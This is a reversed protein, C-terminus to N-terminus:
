TQSGTSHVNASGKVTVAFVADSILGSNSVSSTADEEVASGLSVSCNPTRNSNQQFRADERDPLLKSASFGSLTRPARLMVTGNMINLPKDSHAAATAAHWSYKIFAVM